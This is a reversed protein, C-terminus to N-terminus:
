VPSFDQAGHKCLPCIFDAPLSDGEYVYGCIKCVFGKKDEKRPQPKPKIHDFYYQYTVSKEGSLVAAETIDAIFLSHSGSDIVETVKASIFANACIPIYRIGNNSRNDYGCNEFKDTDKGSSFGFQKFIGFDASESLVSINFEGTEKVMDHTYNAKNVSISIRLPDSSIQCPTNIICGNDKNDSRATLVFLGYSLKNLAKADM